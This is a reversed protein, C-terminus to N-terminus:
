QSRAEQLPYKFEGSRVQPPWVIVQTGPRKFQDLDNGKIGQYQVQLVRSQSWEGNPAFRVDGVVTRFTNAHIYDALKKQDLSKTGEIAQEIIQM